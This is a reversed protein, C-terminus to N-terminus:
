RKIKNKNLQRLRRLLKNKDQKSLENYKENMLKEITEFDKRIHIVEEDKDTESSQLSIGMMAALGFFEICDLYMLEKNFLENDM